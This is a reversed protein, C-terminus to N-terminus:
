AAGVAGEVDVKLLDIATLGEEAIVAAATRLECEYPIHAAARGAFWRRVLAARCPYVLALLCGLVRSQSALSSLYKKVGETDGFLRDHFIEREELKMTGNGPLGPFYEFTITAPPTDADGATLGFNHLRVADGLESTNRKHLGYVPPIPEFSHVQATGGAAAVTEAAYRAFVGINGGVDLVVVPRGAEKADAALTKLPTLPTSDYCRDEYIEKWLVRMLTRDPAHFTHAHGPMQMEVPGHPFVPPGASDRKARSRCWRGLLLGVLLAAACGILPSPSALLQQLGPAM